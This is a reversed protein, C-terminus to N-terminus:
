LGEEEEMLSYDLTDTQVEETQNEEVEKPTSKCSFCFLAGLVLLLALISGKM